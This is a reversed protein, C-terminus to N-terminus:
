EKIAKELEENAIRRTLAQADEEKFGYLLFPGSCNEVVFDTIQKRSRIGSRLLGLTRARSCMTVAEFTQIAQQTKLQEKLKKEADYQIVDSDPTAEPPATAAPAHHTDPIPKTTPQQTPIAQPVPSQQQDEETWSSIVGWGVYLGFICIVSVLLIIQARKSM